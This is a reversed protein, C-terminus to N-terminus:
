RIVQLFKGPLCSTLDVLTGGYLSYPSTLGMHQDLGFILPHVFLLFSSFSHFYFLRKVFFIERLCSGAQSSNLITTSHKFTLHLFM